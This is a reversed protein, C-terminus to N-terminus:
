LLAELQQQLQQLTLEGNHQFLIRQDRGLIATYPLGGSPNDFAANYRASGYGSLFLPYDIRYEDAFRRVQTEEDFAIGLVGVGRAAYDRHIEILSPIERRCPACWPAWFNVILLDTQWDALRTERGDLDILPISHLEVQTAPNKASREEPGPQTLKFLLVGALLSVLGVTGLLLFNRNM